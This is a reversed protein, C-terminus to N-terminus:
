KFIQHPRNSKGSLGGTVTAAESVTLPVDSEKFLSAFIFLPWGFERAVSLIMYLQYWVFGTVGMKLCRVTGKAGRGRQSHGSPEVVSM